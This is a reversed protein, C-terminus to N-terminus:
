SRSGSRTSHSERRGRRSPEDTTEADVADDRRAGTAPAYPSRLGLVVTANPDNTNLSRDRDTTDTANGDDTQDKTM